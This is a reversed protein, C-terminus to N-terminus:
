ITVEDPTVTVEKLLDVVVEAEVVEIVAIVAEEIVAIIAEEEVTAREGAIGFTEDVFEVTQVLLKRWYAPLTECKVYSQLM